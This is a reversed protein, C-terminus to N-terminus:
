WHLVEMSLLSNNQGMRQLSLMRFFDFLVLNLEFYNDIFVTKRFIIVRVHQM